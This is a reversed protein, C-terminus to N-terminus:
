LNRNFFGMWHPVAIFRHWSVKEAIAPGAKQAQACPGLLSLSAAALLLLPRM